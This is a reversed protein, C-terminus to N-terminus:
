TLEVNIANKRPFQYTTSGKTEQLAFSLLAFFSAFPLLHTTLIKKNTITVHVCKCPKINKELRVERGGSEEGEGEGRRRRRRRRRKRRRKERRGGGGTPHYSLPEKGLRSHALSVVLQQLVLLLWQSLVPSWHWQLGCMIRVKRRKQEGEEREKERRKEGKGQEKRGEREKGIRKRRSRQRKIKGTKRRREKDRRGRGVRGGSEYKPWSSALYSIRNYVAVM